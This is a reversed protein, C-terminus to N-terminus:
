PGEPKPTSSYTPMHGLRLQKEKEQERRQNDYDRRAESNVDPAPSVDPDVGDYCQRDLWPNQLIDNQLEGEPAASQEQEHHERAHVRAKQRHGQQEQERRAREMTKTEDVLYSEGQRGTPLRTPLETGSTPTKRDTM